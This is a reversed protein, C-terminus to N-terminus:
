RALRLGHALLGDRAQRGGLSNIEYAFGMYTIIDGRLLGSKYPVNKDQRIFRM